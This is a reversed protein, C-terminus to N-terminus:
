QAPQPNLAAMIEKIGVGKAPAGGYISQAAGQSELSPSSISEMMGQGELGLGELAKMSDGKVTVGGKEDSSFAVGKGLLKTLMDIYKKQTAAASQAAINQQVMPNVGAAFSGEGGIAAGIGSLFQLALNNNDM